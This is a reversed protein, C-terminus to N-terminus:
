KLNGIRVLNGCRGCSWRCEQVIAKTKPDQKPSVKGQVNAGCFTCAVPRNELTQYQPNNNMM